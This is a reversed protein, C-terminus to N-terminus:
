YITTALIYLRCLIREQRNEHEIQEATREKKGKKKNAEAGAKAKAQASKFAITLEKFM